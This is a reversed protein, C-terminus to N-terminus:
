RRCTPSRDRRRARRKDRNRYYLYVLTSRHFGYFALALLIALYTGVVLGSIEM